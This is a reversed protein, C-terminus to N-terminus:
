YCCPWHINPTNELSSITCSTGVTVRTMIELVVPERYMIIALLLGPWVHLTGAECWEDSRRRITPTANSQRWRLLEWVRCSARHLCYIMTSCSVGCVALLVWGRSSFLWTSSSCTQVTGRESGSVLLTLSYWQIDTIAAKREPKSIFATFIRLQM